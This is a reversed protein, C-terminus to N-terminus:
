ALNLIELEFKLAELVGSDVNLMPISNCDLAM